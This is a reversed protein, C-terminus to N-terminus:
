THISRHFRRFFPMIRRQAVTRATALKDQMRPCMGHAM